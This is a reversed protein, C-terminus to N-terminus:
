IRSAVFPFLLKARATGAGQQFSVNPTELLFDKADQANTRTIYNDDFVTSSIPVDLITQQRRQATVIIEDLGITDDQVADQAFAAPAATFAAVMAVSATAAFLETKMKTKM